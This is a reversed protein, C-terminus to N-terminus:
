FHANHDFYKQWGQSHKMACMRGACTCAHAIFVKICQVDEDVTIKYLM